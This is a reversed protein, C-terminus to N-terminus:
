FRCTGSLLPCVNNGFPILPNETLILVDLKPFFKFTNLDKIQNQALDLYVLGKLEKLPSPDEIANVRLKLFKLKGLQSLPDLDKIRNKGLSLTTLKTFPKLFGVDELDLGVLELSERNLMESTVYKCSVPINYKVYINGEGLINYIKEELESYAMDKCVRFSFTEQYGPYAKETKVDLDKYKKKISEMAKTNEVVPNWDLSLLDLSPLSDIIDLPIEEIENASLDLYHLNELGYLPSLDKIDRGKLDLYNKTVLALNSKECSEGEGSLSMIIKSVTNKQESDASPNKCIKLFDTDQYNYLQLKRGVIKIGPFNIALEDLEEQPIDNWSIDLSQLHKLTMLPRISKVRNDKLSLVRLNELHALASVDSILYNDLNLTTKYELFEKLLSCDSELQLGLKDKLALLTNKQHSSALDDQCINLLDLSNIEQDSYSINVKQCNAEKSLVLGTEEQIWCLSDHALGYIDGDDWGGCPSLGRSLVGFLKWDGNVKAFAPGGSDGFCASKGKEGIGVENSSSNYIKTEVLYKKGYPAESGNERRGFGLLTTMNGPKIANKIELPDTLLPYIKVNLVPKDLILYATDANGLAYKKYNPNLRARVVGYQANLHKQDRGPGIYVKVLDTYKLNAPLPLDLCHAATLVIKPHILTGSCFPIDDKVLAVVSGWEHTTVPEGGIIASTRVEPTSNMGVKKSCSFFFSPSLFILFLTIRTKLKETMNIQM